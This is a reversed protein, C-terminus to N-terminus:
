KNLIMKRTAVFGDVNITYFYTGSPLDEAYFSVSYTGAQKYDNVLEEVEKGLVDYVRLEISGAKALSYEITTVPNFPNPYNQSLTYGDSIKSGSQTIGVLTDSYIGGTNVPANLDTGAGGWVIMLNGTWITTQYQRASPANSTNIPSWQNTVPDYAYGNNYVTSPNSNYGGWIIMRSGTWVASHWIRPEPANTTSIATWTNSSPDYIAGTNFQGGVGGGGWIIMKSGTWVVSPSVRPTPANTLSTETWTNNAPDYVGGTQFFNIAGNLDCGGWIIVKSGTWVMVHQQRGSPANTTSTETWSNAVPDYQGGTNLWIYNSGNHTCGGWVIMKSGTWISTPQTRPGPANSISTATWSNQSPDYLGGTNLGVATSGGGWIIMKSGSWVATHFSRMEPANTTSTTTWSNSLLDYVGGTNLYPPNGGWIIMKSGTWVATHRIRPSPAGNTSTPAWQTMGTESLVFLNIFLIFVYTKFSYLRKILLINM